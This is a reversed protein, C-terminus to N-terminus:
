TDIKIGCFKKDTEVFDINKNRDMIVMFCRDSSKILLGLSRDLILNCSGDINQVCLFWIILFGKM